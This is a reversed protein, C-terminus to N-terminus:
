DRSCAVLIAPAISRLRRTPFHLYWRSGVLYRFIGHWSRVSFAEDALSLWHDRGEKHLHTPDRDLFRVISGAPGDYVPVVFAFLGGPALWTAIDRFLGSPDDVHEIVDWATVVDFKTHPFPRSGPEIRELSVAADMEATLAELAAENVDTGFLRWGPKRTNVHKLFAGPGCGFDLLKPHDTAVSRAVCELYHDLKASPNQSEYSRYIEAYYDFAPGDPNM